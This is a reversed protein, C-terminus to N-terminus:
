SEVAGPTGAGSADREGTLKATILRQYEDASVVFAAVEGRKLIQVHEAQATKLLRGFHRRAETVTIDVM